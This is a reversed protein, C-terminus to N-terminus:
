LDTKGRGFRERTIGCLEDVLELTHLPQLRIYGWRGLGLYDKIIRSAPQSSMQTGLKIESLDSLAWM